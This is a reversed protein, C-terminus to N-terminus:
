QAPPSLKLNHQEFRGFFIAIQAVHGEPELDHIVADDLYMQCNPLDDTVRFMVRQFAGPAGSGGQPTVLWEYMGSPTCFATLETSDPDMVLQHYGSQMDFTFLLKGKGLSDIIENIRPLPLRPVTTVAHLRQYNVTLRIKGNKKRVVVVLPSAWPYTSHGIIGAALYSDIIVRDRICM